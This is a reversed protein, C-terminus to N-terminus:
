EKGYLKDRKKNRTRAAKRMSNLHKRGFIREIVFMPRKTSGEELGLSKNSIIRLGKHGTKFYKTVDKSMEIVMRELEEEEIQPFFGKLEELYDELYRTTM